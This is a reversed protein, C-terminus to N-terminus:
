VIFLKFTNPQYRTEIFDLSKLNDVCIIENTLLEIKLNKENKNCSCRILILSILSFLNKM